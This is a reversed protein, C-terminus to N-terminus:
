IRDLSIMSSAHLTAASRRRSTSWAAPCSRSLTGPKECASGCCKKRRRPANQETIDQFWVWWAASGVGADFIPATFLSIDIRKGDKRQRTVEIGKFTKGTLSESHIKQFEQLEQEPVIPLPKELVEEDTWGFIREAAPNWEFVHGNVDLAIFALPFAQIMANLNQNMEKLQNEIRKRETIDLSIGGVAEVNGQPDILPFKVTYTDCPHGEWLFHDETVFPVKTRLVRKDTEIFKSATPSSFIEETRRGIV